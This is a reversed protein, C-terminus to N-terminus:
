IEWNWDYGLGLGRVRVFSWPFYFFELLYACVSVYGTFGFFHFHFFRLFKFSQELVINLIEKLFILNFIRRVIFARVKSEARGDSNLATPSGQLDTVDVVCNVLFNFYFFDSPHFLVCVCVLVSWQFRLTGSSRHQVVSSPVAGLTESNPGMTHENSSPLDGRRLEIASPSEGVREKIEVAEKEEQSGDNSESDNGKRHLETAGAQLAESSHEAM